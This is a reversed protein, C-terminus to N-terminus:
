HRARRRATRLPLSAPTCDCFSRQSLQAGASPLGRRLSVWHGVRPREAGLARLGRSRADATSKATAVTVM